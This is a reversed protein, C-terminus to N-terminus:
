RLSEALSTAISKMNNMYDEALPDIGVVSGGIEQAISTAVNEDFQKQVFIVKIGKEKAFRVIEVTHKGLPEKGEVEIPIQRLGFQECFYGWAPHFVLIDRTELPELIEEVQKSLGDLDLSFERLNQEIEAAHDPLIKKMADAITGAQKKVLDPSLWIHPDKGTHEHDHGHHEHEEEMDHHEHDHEMDQHGLELAIEDFSEVDRLTLGKRTDIITVGSASEQIAPLFSEEFPVGIRFYVQADKLEVQQKISPEYTVPSSNPPLMLRVDVFDGAIREVFYKQPAISVFVVPKDSVKQAEKPACSMLLGAVIFLAIIAKRM